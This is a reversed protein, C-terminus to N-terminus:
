NSICIKSGSELNRLCNGPAPMWGNKGARFTVGSSFDKISMVEGGRFMVDCDVYTPQSEDRHSFCTHSKSKAELQNISTTLTGFLISVAIANFFKM